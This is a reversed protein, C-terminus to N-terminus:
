NKVEYNRHGRRFEPYPGLGSRIFLLKGYIKKRKEGGDRISQQVNLQDTPNDLTFIDVAVKLLEFKTYFASERM